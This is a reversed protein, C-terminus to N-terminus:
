DTREKATVLRDQGSVLKASVVRDGSQLQRLVEESSTVYGFVSFQGEDFSLGGLGGTNRDFRRHSFSYSSPPETRSTLGHQEHAQLSKGTSSFDLRTAATGMQATCLRLRGTSLYHCSLSRGPPWRIWRLGIGRSLSEKLGFRSLCRRHHRVRPLSHCWWSLAKGLPCGLWSWAM